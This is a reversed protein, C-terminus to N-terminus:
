PRRLAIIAVMRGAGGPSPEGPAAGSSGAAGRRAGRITERRHSHFLDERCSTCMDSVYVRSPSLGALILSKRNMEWLDLRPRALAAEEVLVENGFVARARSAVEPGVEYCCPGISPGVAALLDRPRSGLKVRMTEVARGAIGALSGRWGAHVVGAAPTKPDLLWVPVCDACFVALTLGRDITVLGDTNDQHGPRTAVAVVDGHVQGATVLTDPSVGLARFLRRRNETVDAPSDGSHYGVNMSHWPSSSVGGLRTSFVALTGPLARELPAVRVVAVGGELEHLPFAVPPRSGNDRAPKAM